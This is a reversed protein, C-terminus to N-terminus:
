EIGLEKLKAYLHQRHIGLLRAAETKNGQSRELARVVMRRELDAVAQELPMELLETLRSEDGADRGALPQLDEVTVLPGRSLVVAREVINRLERVNGPYGHTMLLRLAEETFVSPPNPKTAPTNRLFFEAIAHIDSRRARLPPVEIRVVNLRYFLDERFRGGAVLEELNQNTAAILRFNSAVSDKGGLREFKREQLARLLKAQADLPLDGIEDLFLTGRDAQEMRGPKSTAAGTFAGREYGFLESEILNAPLAACNVAVIPEAARPSHRHIAQAVLEKGTGSEGVILVSAETLAVKGILKFVERMASHQGILGGLTDADNM